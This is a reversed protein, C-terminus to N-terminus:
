DIKTFIFVILSLTKRNEEIVLTLELIKKAEKITILSKLYFYDSYLYIFLM